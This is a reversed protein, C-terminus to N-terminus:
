VSGGKGILLSATNGGFAFSNSLAYEIVCPESDSNINIGQGEELKTELHPMPFLLQHGMMLLIAALEVAGSAGMCHGTLAKTSNMHVGKPFLSQVAKSEMADNLATGTGHANIYDIQDPAIGGEELAMKMSAKAGSGDPDPSTVHYADNNLGYGLIEAYVPVGRKQASEMTEMLFFASGEGINIGDRNQDMPNTIGCSLAKLVHFGAAGVETLPDTGGAVAMDCIGEKLFDYAMGLATTGSACAAECAYVGGRVGVNKQLWYLYQSEREIWGGADKGEMCKQTYGMFRSTTGLLSGCFVSAKPGLKEMEESSFRGDQFMEKLAKEMLWEMRSEEYPEQPTCPLPIDAQGFYSTRLQEVPYIDAKRIGLVGRRCNEFFREKGIGNSAAVGFGTIVIRRDSIM